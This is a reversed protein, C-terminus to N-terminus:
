QLLRNTVAFNQREKTNIISTPFNGAAPKEEIQTEKEIQTGVVDIDAAASM